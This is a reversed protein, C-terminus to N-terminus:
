IAGYFISGDTIFPVSGTPDAGSSSISAIDFLLETAQNEYYSSYQRAEEFSLIETRSDQVGVTKIMGGNENVRTNLPIISYALAYFTESKQAKDARTFGSGSEVQGLLTPYDNLSGSVKWSARDIFPQLTADSVHDVFNGELRILSGTTLTSIM